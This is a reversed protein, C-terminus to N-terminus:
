SSRFIPRKYQIRRFANVDNVNLGYFIATRFLINNNRSFIMRHLCAQGRRCNSVISNGNTQDSCYRRNDWWAPNKIVLMQTESEEELGNRDTMQVVFFFFFSPSLFFSALLPLFILSSTSYDHSLRYILIVYTM